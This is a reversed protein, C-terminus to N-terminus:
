KKWEEGEPDGLDTGQPWGNPPSELPPWAPHVFKTILNMLAKEEQTSELKILWGNSQEKAKM